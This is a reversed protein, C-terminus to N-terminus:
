HWGRSFIYALLLYGGCVIVIIIIVTVLVVSGGCILLDKWLRKMSDSHTQSQNANAALSDARDTLDDAHVECDVVTRANSQMVEVVENVQKQTEQLKDGNQDNDNWNPNSPDSTASM